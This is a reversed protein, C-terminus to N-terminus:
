GGCGLDDGVEAADIVGDDNDDAFAANDTCTDTTGTIKFAGQVRNQVLVTNNGSVTMDRFVDSGAFVNNNGSILVDGTVKVFVMALNNKPM